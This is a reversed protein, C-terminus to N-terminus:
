NSNDAPVMSGLRMIEWELTIGTKELVRQRVTEGLTEIHHATAQGLNLLFNCHKESVQADGIQLGRCGATDILEWAKQEPPNKFTSGGTRGRIPQTDERRKLFDNLTHHIEAPDKPDCTFAARVAICGKPLNGKRYAMGLDGCVLRHLTGQNDVVDVWKMFDKVEGGYAGANMAVAGGITGPIGVLFELGTLGWQQCQLAVTRDLCGAGLIVTNNEKEMQSFGSGLRVVCANVGGDRVLINSGAGICFLPLDAPKNKLFNQLDNIDKPKFVVRAPGGVRFWTSPALPQDFVYRGEIAPLSATM